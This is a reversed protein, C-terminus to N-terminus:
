TISISEGGFLIDKNTELWLPHKAMAKSFIRSQLHNNLWQQLKPYPAQLYWKRDVKAFQRIFPLVTYDVLSPEIGMIFPHENLRQELSIIFQECQLRDDSESAKHYRKAQKYQSLLKTFKNDHEDIIKMMIPLFSPKHNYLLNNPDNKHLAWLMIDLSEDIVNNQDLVLVPVTGKPSAMLMDKPKNKLVIPRLMVAQKALLLGMRARMAYPCNQLSYLIPQPM